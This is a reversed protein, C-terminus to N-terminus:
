NLYKWMATEKRLNELEDTYENKLEHLAQLLEINGHEDYDKIESVIQMDIKRIRKKINDTRIELDRFYSNNHLYYDSINDEIEKPDEYIKKNKILERDNIRFLNKAERNLDFTSTNYEEANTIVSKRNFSIIDSETNSENNSVNENLVDNVFKENTQIYLDYETELIMETILEIRLGLSLGDVRKILDNKSKSTGDNTIWVIRKINENKAHSILDKWILLDGFKEQFKIDKIIKYGVKESDNFGPPTKDEYRKEGDEEVSDIFDQSPIDGMYTYLKELTETYIDEEASLFNGKLKTSVKSLAQQVDKKLSNITKDVTELEKGVFYNLTKLQTKDFMKEVNLFELDKKKAEIGKYINDIQDRVYATKIYKKNYNFEAVSFFSVFKNAKLTDIAKLYKKSEDVPMRLIDLFFNTDFMVLTDEEKYINKNFEPAHFPSFYKMNNEIKQKIVKNHNQETM